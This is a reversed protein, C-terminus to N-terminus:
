LKKFRTGSLDNRLYWEAHDGFDVSVVFFGRRPQNGYRYLILNDIWRYGLVTGERGDKTRVIDGEIYTLPIGGVAPVNKGIIGEKVPRRDLEDVYNIIVNCDSLIAPMAEHDHEILYNKVEIDSKFTRPTMIDYYTSTDFRDSM